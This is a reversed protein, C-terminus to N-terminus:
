VSNFVYGVRFLFVSGGGLVGEAFFRSLRHWLKPLQMDQKLLVVDLGPHLFFQEIDLCGYMGKDRPHQIDGAGFAPIKGIWEAIGEASQSFMGQAFCASDEAM